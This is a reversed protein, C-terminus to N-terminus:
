QCGSSRFWVSQYFLESNRVQQWFYKCFCDRDSSDFYYEASLLGYPFFNQRKRIEWESSVGSYSGTNGDSDDVFGM